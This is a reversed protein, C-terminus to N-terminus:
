SHSVAVRGGDGEVWAWLRNAGVLGPWFDALFVTGPIHDGPYFLRASEAGGPATAPAVAGVTGALLVPNTGLVQFSVATTDSNTLQTWARPLLTITDNRAM